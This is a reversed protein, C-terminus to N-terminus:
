DNDFFVLKVSSNFKKGFGLETLCHLTTECPDGAPIPFVVHFYCGKKDNYWTVQEIDLKTLLEQLVKEMPVVVDEFIQEQQLVPKKRPAGRGYRGANKDRLEVELKLLANNEQVNLNLNNTLNDPPPPSPPM